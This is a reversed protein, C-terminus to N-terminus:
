LERSLADPRQDNTDYCHTGAERGCIGEVQPISTVKLPLIDASRRVHNTEHRRSRDFIELSRIHEREYEVAASLRWHVSKLRVVHIAVRGLHYKGSGCSLYTRMRAPM